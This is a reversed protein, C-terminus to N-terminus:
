RMVGDRDVYFPYHKIGLTRAIDDGPAVSIPVKTSVMKRIENMREPTEINVVVGVARKSELFESNDQLWQLSVPDDGIIFMPTNIQYAPPLNPMEDAGVEGPSMLTTRIPFIGKMYGSRPISLHQETDSNAQEKSYYYTSVATGGRDTLVTLEDGLELAFVSTNTISLLAGILALNRGM